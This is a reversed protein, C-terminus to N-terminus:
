GIGVDDVGGEGMGMGEAAAEVAGVAARPVAAEFRFGSRGLDSEVFGDIKEFYAHQFVVHRVVIEGGVEASLEM